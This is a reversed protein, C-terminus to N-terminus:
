NSNDTFGLLSPAIRLLPELTSPHFKRAFLFCITSRTRHTFGCDTMNRIKMLFGESVHKRVFMSPHSGPRSWDVWTISHNTNIEPLIKTVLTPFYHEDMYCRPPKCHQKLISYYKIDSVMQVAVRRHVEFWQSGKRWDALTLEPQMRKNYRGRGMPRPDDISGLFSQNWSSIILYNYITTFNFIPICTDSLLIFRENSWDLLANALLRREADVMTATGWQVPKSPIMRNYFVSSSYPPTFDTISSVHLYISYFGEHGKFFMEWLPALPLSGRSLFMFALKPTRTYPYQSIRPEMSARWLLEEDNMSHWVQDASPSALSNNMTSSACDPIPPSFFIAPLVEEMSSSSSLFETVHTRLFAGLFLVISAIFLCLIITTIGVHLSGGRSSEKRLRVPLYKALITVKFQGM